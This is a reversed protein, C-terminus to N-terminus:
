RPTACTGAAIRADSDDIHGEIGANGQEPWDMLMRGLRDIQFLIVGDVGTRQAPTQGGDPRREVVQRTLRLAIGAPLGLRKLRAAGLAQCREAATGRWPQTSFGEALHVLDQRLTVPEGPM